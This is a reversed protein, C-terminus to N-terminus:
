YHYFNDINQTEIINQNSFIISDSSEIIIQVLNV